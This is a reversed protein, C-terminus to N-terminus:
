ISEPLLSVSHHVKWDDCYIVIHTLLLTPGVKMRTNPEQIVRKSLDRHLTSMSNSDVPVLCLALAPGLKGQGM